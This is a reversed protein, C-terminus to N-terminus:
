EHGHRYPLALKPQWSKNSNLVQFQVNVPLLGEIQRKAMTGAARFQESLPFLNNPQGLARDLWRYAEELYWMRQSDDVMNAAALDAEALLVQADGHGQEAAKQLWYIHDSIDSGLGKGTKLRDRVLLLALEYEAPAYGRNASKQMAVFQRTQDIELYAVCILGIPDDQSASRDAWVKAQTLDKKVGAQGTFYVMALSAEAQAYGGEAAKGIWRIGEKQNPVCGEGHFLMEGYHYQAEQNGGRAAFALHPM